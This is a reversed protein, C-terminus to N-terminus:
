IENLIDEKKRSKFPGRILPIACFSCCNNCGDAIKVYAFPVSSDIIRDGEMSFKNITPFSEIKKNTQLSKKILAVIDENAGIGLVIDVEPINKLIEKKYRQALCGTVIVKNLHSSSKKLECVELITNIAEQKASEIFGCTNIIIIECLSLNTCIEFGSQELKFLIKEADVQNKFCGLYILGIRM